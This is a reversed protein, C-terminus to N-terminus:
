ALALRCPRRHNQGQFQALPPALALAPLWCRGPYLLQRNHRKPHPQPPPVISFILSMASFYELSLFGAASGTGASGTTLRESVSLWTAATNSTRPMSYPKLNSSLRISNVSRSLFLAFGSSPGTISCCPAPRTMLFIGCWLAARPPNYKPRM